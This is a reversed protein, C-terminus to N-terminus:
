VSILAQASFGRTRADVGIALPREHVEGSLLRLLLPLPLNDIAEFGLDEFANIATSRGAGAPGTILAVDQQTAKPEPSPHM